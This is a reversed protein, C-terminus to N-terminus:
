PLSRAFDLDGAAAPSTGTTGATVNGREPTGSGPFQSKSAPDALLRGVELANAAADFGAVVTARGAAGLRARLDGDTALREIAAALLDARGPPVLLGDVGDRVLEPIGALGSTVVPLGTAMAEMLVVPVGEAFSPQVFIDAAAYYGPMDDQGIAGAFDVATSLGLATVRAALAPRLPGDGVLTLRLPVGRDHLLRLADLLVLHGKEASLRGVVLLTLTAGDGDDGAPVPYRALDVGCHVVHLKSWDEPPCLAMLQARTFESICVVFSAAAVKRVLNFREVNWFEVCGHMTFSWRWTPDHDVRQGLRSALWAVDAAVNALHAHLARIGLRRAHQWVLLAEGFYAVQRARAALGPPSARMAEVFTAATGRPSRMVARLAARVLTGFAVPRLAVVREHEEADAQSLVGDPHPSRVTFVQV